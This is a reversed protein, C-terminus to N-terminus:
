ALNLMWFLLGKEMKAFPAAFPLMRGM